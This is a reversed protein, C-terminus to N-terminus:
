DLRTLTMLILGKVEPLNAMFRLFDADIANNGSITIPGYRVAPGPSITIDVDLKQRMHDATVARNEIKALAHGEQRWAEISLSAADGILGALAPTSEVSGTIQAPTNRDEISTPLPAFSINGFQFLPGTSISVTISSHRPLKTTFSIDSVEVGNIQISINGAYYGAAYLTAIFARYDGKARALLMATNAAPTQAEILLNSASRLENILQKPTNPTHFLITYAIEGEAPEHVPESGWIRLGFLEFAFAPQMSLASLLYSILFIISFKRM